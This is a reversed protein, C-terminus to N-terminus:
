PPRLVRSTVYALTTPNFFHFSVLSLSGLSIIRMGRMCSICHMSFTMLRPGLSGWMFLSLLLTSVDFLCYYLTSASGLDFMLWSSLLFFDSSTSYFLPILYLYSFVFLYSFSHHDVQILAHLYTVHFHIYHLILCPDLSGLSLDSAERVFISYKYVGRPGINKKEFRPPTPLTNNSHTSASKKLHQSNCAPVHPLCWWRTLTTTSSPINQASSLPQVLLPPALSSKHSFFFWSFFFFDLSHTKPAASSLLHCNSFFFFLAFCLFFAKALNPSAVYDFAQFRAIRTRTPTIWTCDNCANNEWKQVM